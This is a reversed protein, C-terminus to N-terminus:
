SMASKMRGDVTSALAGADTRGIDRGEVVISGIANARRWFITEVSLSTRTSYGVREDGLAPTDLHQVGRNATPTKATKFVDRAAGASQYLDVRSVVVGKGSRYRAIWVGSRDSSGLFGADAATGADNQFRTWGALDAPQLVIRPLAKAPLSSSSSGCAACGAAVLLALALRRV